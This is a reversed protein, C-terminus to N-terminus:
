IIVSLALTKINVYYNGLLKLALTLPVIWSNKVARPICLLQLVSQTKIPATHLLWFMGTIKASVSYTPFSVKTNDNQINMWMDSLM